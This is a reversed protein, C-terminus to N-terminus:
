THYVSMLRPLKEIAERKVSLPTEDRYTSTNTGEKEDNDIHGVLDTRTVGLVDNCHLLTHNVYHRLSHICLKRPNDDLSINMAKRWADDFREGFKEVSLAPDEAKSRKSGKRPVPVVDPFLLKHGKKAISGAYELFGLEILHSHIPVVRTLKDDENIDAAEGKIGRYVNSQIVLAPIGEIVQVDSALMGSIEARRAGTYALILPIWYKGDQVVTTGQEHRRGASHAGTWITHSFLKRAEDIRFVARAKHKNRSSKKKPKLNKTDLDPLPIGEAKARAIVLEVSKVHRRRTSADLGLENAAMHKGNLYVEEVTRHADKSSRLFNKPFKKLSDSWHALHAQRIDTVNAIGTIFMFRRIDSGRQKKVDNSMNNDVASRWFIHAINNSWEEPTALEAYEQEDYFYEELTKMTKCINKSTASAGFNQPIEPTKTSIASPAAPLSASLAPNEEPTTGVCATALHKTHSVTKLEGNDVHSESGLQFKQLAQLRARFHSGRLQALHEQDNIVENTLDTFTSCLRDTTPKSFAKRAEVAYLHLLTDLTEKDWTPDIDNMPFKKRIGRELFSQYIIPLLNLIRENFDSYRGKMRSFNVQRNLESICNKLYHEFYRSVIDDPLAPKLLLFSDFM